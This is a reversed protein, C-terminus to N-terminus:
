LRRRHPNSYGISPGPSLKAVLQGNVFLGIDLRTGNTAGFAPISAPDAPGVGPIAGCAAVTAAAVLAAIFGGGKWRRRVPHHTRPGSVASRPAAPCDANSWTSRVDVRAPAVRSPRGIRNSMMPFRSLIRVADPSAIALCAL